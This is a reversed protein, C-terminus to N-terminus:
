ITKKIKAVSLHFIGYKYDRHMPDLYIKLVYIYM